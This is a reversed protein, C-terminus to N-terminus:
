RDVGEFARTYKMNIMSLGAVFFFTLVAYAAALGFLSLNVALKYTYTTLIDTAGATQGLGAPGGTTLLYVAGFNSLNFAFTSILLPLTASRLLPFVVKSFRAWVGAGDVVAAEIVESPISQLAGLCATMMFPYGFWANVMIVSFRAWNSDTLWPVSGLHLNNLLLNFQGFDVNLIGSWAITLIAGPVAWPLILIVRYFNREPINPNNLLFALGLGLTFNIATSIGAFAITWILVGLLEGRLDSLITHFNTLGASQFGEVLANHNQSWNTFAVFITFAIPIVSAVIMAVVAPAIYGYAYLSEGLRSRRKRDRAVAATAM